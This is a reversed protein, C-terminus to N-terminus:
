DANRFEGDILLNHQVPIPNALTAEVFCGKQAADLLRKQDEFPADSDLDVDMRFAVPRSTYPNRGEVRAEWEIHAKVKVDGVEVRLRKAFARTQTMLCAVFGTCFYALPPPATMDGGHAAGEDTAMEFAEDLVPSIMQGKIENRMKGVATGEVNFVVNFAKVKGDDAMTETKKLEEAM